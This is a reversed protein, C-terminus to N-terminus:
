LNQHNYLEYWKVHDFVWGFSRFRGGFVRNKNFPSAKRTKKKEAMRMYEFVLASVLDVEKVKGNRIRGRGIKKEWSKWSDWSEWFGMIKAVWGIDTRHFEEDLSCPAAHSRGWHAEALVQQLEWNKVVLHLLVEISHIYQGCRFLCSLWHFMM